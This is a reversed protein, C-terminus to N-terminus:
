IRRWVVVAVIGVAIGAAMCGLLRYVLGGTVRTFRLGVRGDVFGDACQCKARIYIDYVLITFVPCNPTANHLVTSFDVIYCL